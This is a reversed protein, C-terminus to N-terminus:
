SFLFWFLTFFFIVYIITFAVVMLLSMLLYSVIPWIFGWLLDLVYLAHDIWWGIANVLRSDRVGTAIFRRNSDSLRKTGRNILKLAALYYNASQELEMISSRHGAGTHDSVLWKATKKAGISALKGTTHLTSNTASKINRIAKSRSTKNM